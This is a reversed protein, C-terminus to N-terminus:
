PGSSDYHKLLMDGNRNDIYLLSYHNASQTKPNFDSLPFFILKYQSLNAHPIAENAFEFSFNQIIQTIQTNFIRFYHDNFLINYKRELCPLIKERQTDKLHFYLITDRLWRGDKTCEYDIDYLCIEEDHLVLKREKSM